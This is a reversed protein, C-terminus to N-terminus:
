QGASYDFYTLKLTQMLKIDELPTTSAPVELSFAEYLSGLDVVRYHLLDIVEPFCKYLLEREVHSYLGAIKCTKRPSSSLVYECLYDRLEAFAVVKEPHFELTRLQEWNLNVSPKACCLDLGLVLKQLKSDTMCCTLKMLDQSFSVKVWLLPLDSQSLYEVEKMGLDQEEMNELYKNELILKAISEAIDFRHKGCKEFTEKRLEKITEFTVQLPVNCIRLLCYAFIGTRHIGAACHILLHEGNLLREKAEGLGKRIVSHAYPSALLRNNAGRLDVWLWNLGVKSCENQIQHASESSSLLSVVTTCQTNTALTSLFKLKPRSSLAISGNLLTYFKTKKAQM